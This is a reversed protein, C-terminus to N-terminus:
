DLELDVLGEIPNANTVIVRLRAGPALRRKSHRGVWAHGHPELRYDDDRLSDLHLLGDVGVDLLQVFCGFEVVTTVIGDFTQGLRERLFSCKLFTDVYRSAEDARKELRSTSEGLAALEEVSCRQGSRDSEALRAKLARHVVLDPYRRIPSTFHTYERLALGFHGINAPQYVAQPMSRVVLSEVFRREPRRGLRETIARLDRPAPQEPLEVGLGITRLVALLVDLKKVEPQAHVRFLTPVRAALLECAVSVNAVIMCEEILKHAENRAYGGVARVAQSEDFEFTAETSEFDLAGRRRRAKFLARYVDVLPELREVMPGLARRAPASREFLAAFVEDYTLRAHSRMVAPYFRASRLQGTKSVTLDAAFCLRDVEPTLSCLHDSLATPLMPLVRQPFYVSTGRRRAEADLASGPRVYHSVDAIAVVLRFGEAAAEAYVADDFDRADPGDITVLPLERLDVRRRAESPDVHEGFYEAERLAEAPFEVPLSYKAIASETAMELPKLPDLRREVRATAGQMAAAHRTIRAIVWDGARAGELGEASVHARLGLRRDVAHVWASRGATEVTGLFSTVGRALVELVEGSYRGDAARKVAVRVRDGTTLGLMQRPPLFVSDHMGEVKVFGFGARHGSVIGERAGM